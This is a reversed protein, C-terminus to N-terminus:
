HVSDLAKGHGEQGIQEHLEPHLALNRKSWRMFILMLVTVILGFIVIVTNISMDLWLMLTYAAVMLLINLQENFNQVAISHGASLLVHGRHQLLANMPVVFFGALGGTVLLLLYVSWPSYVLPMLLVVLGMAAGVPLVCLARRLPIRGAAVSGIVTGLAAVGMLISAQDLRYGLHSRGWEIVILQLTAGAGWFLTTVALSIQGLKDRWLVRVYGAFTRVLKVPNKQQPPYRVHTNPILLNCLAALLYVVAIVLIAAEAPTRVLKGLGPHHLLVDSVTPSILAGGLVTGIIISLVTLGEIWSNGKVLMDPPLMETVIGYKAPSYAAAGIGVLGYACCVLYTQYAVPVGLSAYSFMLLCGAVKLANTVFMVRGKPYSDAFAGVFAALVVYALAFSWKMLPAMWDPGSLELILAIAAIFLANDAMSSFAQAAMVLYFGRKM